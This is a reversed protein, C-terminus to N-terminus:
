TYEIISITEMDWIYRNKIFLAHYAAYNKYFNNKSFDFIVELLFIEGLLKNFLEM